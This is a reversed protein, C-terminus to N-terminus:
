IILQSHWSHWQNSWLSCETLSGEIFSGWISLHQYRGAFFIASNTWITNHNYWIRPTPTTCFAEWCCVVKTTPLINKHYSSWSQHTTMNIKFLSWLTMSEGQWLGILPPHFAGLLKTEHQVWKSYRLDSEESQCGPEGKIYIHQKNPCHQLVWIPATIGVWNGMRISHNRSSDDPFRTDFENLVEIGNIGPEWSNHRLGFVKSRVLYKLGNQHQQCDLISKAEWEEEGNHKNVEPTPQRREM